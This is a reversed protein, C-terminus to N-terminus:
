TNYHKIKNEIDLQEWIDTYVIFYKNSHFDNLLAQGAKFESLPFSVDQGNIYTVRIATDKIELEVPIGNKLFVVIHSFIIFILGIINFICLIVFM